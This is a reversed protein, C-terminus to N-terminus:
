SCPLRGIIKLSRHAPWARSIGLSEARNIAFASNSGWSAPEAPRSNRHLRGGKWLLVNGHRHGPVAKHRERAIIRHAMRQKMRDVMNARDASELLIERSGHTDEVLRYIKPDPEMVVAITLDIWLRPAEGPSLALGFTEGAEPSATVIAALDDKLVALRLSKAAHVAKFHAAELARAKRMADGLGGVDGISTSFQAM